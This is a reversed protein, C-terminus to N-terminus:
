EVAIAVQRIRADADATGVVAIAGPRRAVAEQAERVSPVLLPMSGGGSYVLRKWGRFLRAHDRGVVQVLSADCDGDQVLVVVVPTGDAWNSIRGLLMDRVRVADLGTAAADARVLAVQAHAVACLLLALVTRM